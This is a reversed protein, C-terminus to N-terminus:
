LKIYKITSIQWINLSFIYYWVAINNQPSNSTM